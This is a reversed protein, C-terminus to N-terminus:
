VEDHWTCLFAHSTCVLTHKIYDLHQDFGRQQLVGLVWMEGRSKNDTSEREARMMQKVACWKTSASDAM